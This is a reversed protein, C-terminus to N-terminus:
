NLKAIKESIKTALLAILNSQTTAIDQYKIASQQTLTTKEQILIGGKSDQISWFANLITTGDSSSDLRNIDITIIYKFTESFTRNKIIAKPLASSLDQSLTRAILDPLPEIWRNSESVIIESTDSKQIIMQPRDLYRPIQIRNIGITVAIDSVPTINEPILTYFQSTQSRGAFCASLLFCTLFTIIKKM